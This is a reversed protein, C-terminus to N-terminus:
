ESTYKGVQVIHAFVGPKSILHYGAHNWRTQTTIQFPPYVWLLTNNICGVEIGEGRKKKEKSFRKLSCCFKPYLYNM